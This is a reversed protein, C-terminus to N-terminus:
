AVGEIMMRAAQVADRVWAPDAAGDCSPGPGFVADMVASPLYTMGHAVYWVEVLLVIQLGLESRTSGWMGPRADMQALRDAIFRDM